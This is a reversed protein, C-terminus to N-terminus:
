NYFKELTIEGSNLKKLKNNSLVILKGEEDIDIIKVEENGNIFGIKDKLYFNNRIIEMYTNNGNIFDTYLRDFSNIIENIILAKDFDKNLLKKLSTAKNEIEKEFETQNINIGIGCILAEVENTSIAELLIGCLKKDNSLIDNPWKISCNVYRNLVNFVSAGVVLSINSINIDSKPKLLISMAINDNSSFWVRGMRGKGGTQNDCVLVTFEKFDEYQEKLFSNTSPISNINIIEYKNKIISM